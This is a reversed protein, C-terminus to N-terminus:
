TRAYPHQKATNCGTCLSQSNAPSRHAGGQRLAVIHDTVTARVKRGERACRSHEVHLKGDARQGCWPFQRLWNLSFVDWAADYGRERATGRAVERLLICHPCPGRFIGHGRPCPRRGTRM